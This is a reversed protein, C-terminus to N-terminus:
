QLPQCSPCIYSSSRGTKIKEITTDCSPCPKGEQYAVQFNSDDWKGRHNFDLIEAGSMAKGFEDEPLNLCKPQLIKVDKITKGTLAQNMERARVVIEPLEPM